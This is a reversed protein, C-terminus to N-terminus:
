HLEITICNSDHNRHSVTVSGELEVELQVSQQTPSTTQALSSSNSSQIQYDRWPFAAVGRGRGGTM